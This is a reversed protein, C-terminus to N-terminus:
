RRSNMIHIVLNTCLYIHLIHHQIKLLHTQCIKMFHISHTSLYFDEFKKELKPDSFRFHVNIFTWFSLISKFIAFFSLKKVKKGYHEPKKFFMFFTTVIFNEYKKPHKNYFHREFQCFQCDYCNNNITLIITIICLTNFYYLKYVYFLLLFQKRLNAFYM